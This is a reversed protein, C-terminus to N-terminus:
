HHKDQHDPNDLNIAFSIALAVGPTSDTLGVWSSIV